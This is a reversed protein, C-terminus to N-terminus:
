MDDEEIEKLDDLTQNYTQGTTRCMRDIFEITLQYLDNLELQAYTIVMSEEDQEVVLKVGERIYGEGQAEDYTM